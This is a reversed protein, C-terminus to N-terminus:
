GQGRRKSDAICQFLKLHEQVMTTSCFNYQAKRRGQERWQAARQPTEFLTCIGETWSRQDALPLILGNREHEIFQDYNAGEAAIVPLGVAMAQLLYQAGDTPPAAAIYVDAACSSTRCNTLRGPCASTSGYNAIPSGTTFRM